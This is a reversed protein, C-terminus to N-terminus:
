WLGFFLPELDNIIQMDINLISKRYRQLMEAPTKNSRGKIKEWYDRHANSKSTNTSNNTNQTASTLYKNNEVGDLSGQPTDSYAQLSKGNTNTEGNGKDTYAGEREYVTNYLPDFEILTSEYLKNYYPMIELMTSQLKLKWRGFTEFGIERTYYHYLIKTELEERYEEDFIPYQFNFVRERGVKIIDDIEMTSGHQQAYGELVERLELTYKSM